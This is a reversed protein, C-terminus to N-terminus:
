GFAGDEMYMGGGGDRLPMCAGGDFSVGVEAEPEPM